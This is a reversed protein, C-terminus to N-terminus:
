YGPNQTLASNADLERQPIPFLLRRGTLQLGPSTTIYTNVTPVDAFRRLDDFRHGEYFFERRREELNAVLVEEQTDVDAPLAGIGARNRIVNIDAIAPGLAGLRANAESRILYMEALRLVVVDDGGGGVDTYKNGYINGATTGATTAAILRRTDNAAFISVIPVADSATNSPAVGRRGGFARPYFWFALSNADTVSYALEFISESTQENNFVDAYNAQLSFRGSTIVTNALDRAQTWEKQQLHARALLAQAAQRSARAKSGATSNPLAAIAANLDAEVQAWVEAASNRPVNAGEDVVWRPELVLPVGGFLSVLNMYNLARVFRAEGALAAGEAAPLDTAGPISALVNNARNIAVYAAQWIGSIATNNSRIDRVFVESDTTFTGTFRLNDTYLDPFILLNRAYSGDSQMADYMGNVGVRIEEASNLAEEQPLSQQPQVNLPDDCGAALAAAVLIGLARLKM